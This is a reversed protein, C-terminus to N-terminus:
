AANRVNGRFPGFCKNSFCLGCVSIRHGTPILSVYGEDWRSKQEGFIRSSSGALASPACPIETTPPFSRVKDKM